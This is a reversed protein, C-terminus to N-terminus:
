RSKLTSAETLSPINHKHRYNTVSSGACGLALGIGDDSVLGWMPIAQAWDIPTTRQKRPTKPSWTPTEEVKEAPAEWDPSAEKSKRPRRPGKFPPIGLRTRRNNVTVRSLGLIEGLETDSMTGLYKDFQPWNGM